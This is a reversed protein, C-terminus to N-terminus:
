NIVIFISDTLYTGIASVSNYLTVGIQAYYHLADYRTISPISWHRHVHRSASLPGALGLVHHDPAYAGRSAQTFAHTLTRDCDPTM